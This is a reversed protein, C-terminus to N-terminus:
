NGFNETRKQYKCKVRNYLNTDDSDYNLKRSLEKKRSTPLRPFATKAGEHLYVVRIAKEINEEEPCQMYLKQM